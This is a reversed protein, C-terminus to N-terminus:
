TTELREKIEFDKLGKILRKTVTGFAGIVIPIVTVKMTWLKKWERAFDVYMDKKDSEKLKVRHDASLPFYM